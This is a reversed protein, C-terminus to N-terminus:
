GGDRGGRGSCVCEGCFILPGDSWLKVRGCRSRVVTEEGRGEGGEWSGGGSKFVRFSVDEVTNFAFATEWDLDNDPGEYVDPLESPYLGMKRSMAGLDAEDQGAGVM